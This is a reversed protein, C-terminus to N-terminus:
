TVDVRLHARMTAACYTANAKTRLVLPFCDHPTGIISSDWALIRSLAKNLPVFFFHYFLAGAPMYGNLITEWFYM